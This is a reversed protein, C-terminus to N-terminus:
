LFKSHRDGMSTFVNLLLPNYLSSVSPSNFHLTLHFISDQFCCEFIFIEKNCYYKSKQLITHIVSSNDSIPKFTATAPPFFVGVVTMQATCFFPCALRVCKARYKLVRHLACTDVLYAHPFDLHSNKVFEFQWSQNRLSSPFDTKPSYVMQNGESLSNLVTIYLVVHLSFEQGKDM